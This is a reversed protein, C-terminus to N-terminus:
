KQLFYFAIGLPIYLTRYKTIKYSSKLNFHQFIAIFKGFFSGIEISKNQYNVINIKKPGNKMLDNWWVIAYVEDTIIESTHKHKKSKNAFLIYM